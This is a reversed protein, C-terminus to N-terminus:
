NMNPNRPISNNYSYLVYSSVFLDKIRKHIEVSRRSLIYFIIKMDLKDLFQHFISSSLGKTLFDALWKTSAVYPTYIQESEKIFYKEIEVHKTRDHHISNHAINTTTKNDCCVMM